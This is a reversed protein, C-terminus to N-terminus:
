PIPRPLQCFSYECHFVYGIKFQLWSELLFHNEAEMGCNCLVSRNVPVYPYSPVRIPIDNNINCIIHKNNPWNALMIENWGDLM